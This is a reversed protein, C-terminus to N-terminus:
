KSLGNDRDITTSENEIGMNCIKLQLEEDKKVKVKLSDIPDKIQIHNQLKIIKRLVRKM